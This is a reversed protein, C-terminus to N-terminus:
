SIPHSINILSTGESSPCNQVFNLRFQIYFISKGEKLFSKEYFTQVATVYKPLHMVDLRYVDQNCLLIKHGGFQLVGQTYDYLFKSDTKLHIPAGSKLVTSYRKLFDPHTLRHKARKYKSQPDPFTIWIESVEGSGFFQGIWEIRTRLFAANKLKRELANKAGHWFRAGKIDVGIFNKDPYAEALVLTYEGKGCGLELVIPHENQFFGVSWCGKLPFDEKEIPQVINSFIENESFRRLKNRGM